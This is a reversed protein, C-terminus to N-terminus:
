SEREDEQVPLRVTMRTGEGLASEVEISGGHEDLIRRTIALGFGTGRGAEKTSFFPEFVRDRVEASALQPSMHMGLEISVYCSDARCYSRVNQVGPITRLQEELPEAVKEEVEIPTLNATPIYVQIESSAMGQPAMQIPLKLMSIAGVMILTVALMLVTVPRNVFRGLWSDRLKQM